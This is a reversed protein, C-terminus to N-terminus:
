GLARGIASLADDIDSVQIHAGDALDNLRQVASPAVPQVQQAKVDAPMPRPGGIMEALKNLSITVSQLRETLNEMRAIASSVTRPAAAANEGPYQSGQSVHGNVEHGLASKQFQM